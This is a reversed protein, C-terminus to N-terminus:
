ESAPDVIGMRIAQERMIALSANIEKDNMALFATLGESFQELTLSQRRDRLLSAREEHWKRFTDRATSDEVMLPTSFGPDSLRRVHKEHWAILMDIADLLSTPSDM